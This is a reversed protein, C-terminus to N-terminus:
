IKPWGWVEYRIKRSIWSEYMDLAIGQKLDEAFINVTDRDFKLLNNLSKIILETPARFMFDSGHCLLVISYEPLSTSYKNIYSWAEDLTIEEIRWIPKERFDAKVNQRVLASFAEEIVVSQAADIMAVCEVPISTSECLKTVYEEWQRKQTNRRMAVKLAVKRQEKSM